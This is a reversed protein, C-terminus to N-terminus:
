GKERYIGAASDFARDLAKPAKQPLGNLWYCVGNAQQKTPRHDVQRGTLTCIVDYGDITPLTEFRKATAPQRAYNLPEM